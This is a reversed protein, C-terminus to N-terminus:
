KTTLYKIFAEKGNYDTSDLTIVNGVVTYDTVEVYGPNGITDANVLLEQIGHNDKLLTITSTESVSNIENDISLNTSITYINKDRIVNVTNDTKLIISPDIYGVDSMRIRVSESDTQTTPTRVGIMEFTLRQM